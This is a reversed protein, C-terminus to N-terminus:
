ASSHGKTLLVRHNAPYAKHALIQSLKHWSHINRVATCRHSFGSFTEEISPETQSLFTKITKRQWLNRHDDYGSKGKSLLSIWKSRKYHSRRIKWKTTWRRSSGFVIMRRCQIVFIQWTLALPQATTVCCNVESKRQTCGTGYTRMSTSLPHECFRHENTGVLASLPHIKRVTLTSQTGRASYKPM